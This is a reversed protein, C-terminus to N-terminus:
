VPTMLNSLEKDLSPNFTVSCVCDNLSLVRGRESKVSEDKDEM